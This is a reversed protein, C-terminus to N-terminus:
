KHLSCLATSDNRLTLVARGAAFGVCLLFVRWATWYKYWRTVEVSHCGSM